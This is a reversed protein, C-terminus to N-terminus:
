QMTLCVRKSCPHRIISVYSLELMIKWIRFDDLRGTKGVNGLFDELSGEECYETQIYLQHNEEWSDLYRVVHDCHSLAKLLHAEHLLKRRQKPGTIPACIKKVVYVRVTPRPSSPTHRGPTTAFAPVFPPNICKTVKFVHSFEGAGIPEIKDFRRRLVDYDTEIDDLASTISFRREPRGNFSLSFRGQTTPTAPAHASGPV